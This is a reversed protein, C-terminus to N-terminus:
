SQSIRPSYCSHVAANFSRHLAARQLAQYVSQGPTETRANRKLAPRFATSRMPLCLALDSPFQRKRRHKCRYHKQQAPPMPTSSRGHTKPPTFSSIVSVWSLPCRALWSTPKGWSHAGRRIGPAHLDSFDCQSM